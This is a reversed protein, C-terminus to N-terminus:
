QHFSIWEESILANDYIENHFKKKKDFELVQSWFIKNQKKFQDNLENRCLKYFYFEKFANLIQQSSLDVIKINNKIFDKSDSYNCKFYENIKLPRNNLDYLYKPYTIIDQYSHVDMLPLWNIGLSPRNYIQAIGDPGTGTTICGYCNAFLWVDILDNNIKFDSYEIYKNSKLNLSEKIENGMRIVWFGRSILWLIGEKYKNIDSNRYDQYSWDVDKFNKHLYESDRVILCIFKDNKKFGFKSLYSFVLNNEEKSFKLKVDIKHFLNYIDRSNTQTGTSTFIKKLFLKENWYHVYNLFTFVPLNRKLMKAWQNNSIIHDFCYIYNKKKALRYRAVQEAGDISFHGFRDSRIKILFIKHVFFSYRWILVLPFAWLFHLIKKM